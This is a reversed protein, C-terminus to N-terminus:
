LHTAERKLKYIKEQNKNDDIIDCQHIMVEDLIRISGNNKARVYATLEQIETKSFCHKILGKAIESGFGKKWFFERLRYAIEYESRENKYVGCIGILDKSEKLIVAWINYYIAPDAYYGIFRQLEQQSELRNMTPKIHRMVNQNSQMDYFADLDTVKLRRIILRETEFIM